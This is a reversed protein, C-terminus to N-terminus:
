TIYATPSDISDSCGGDPLSFALLSPPGFFTFFDPWTAGLLDFPFQYTNQFRDKCSQVATPDIDTVLGVMSNSVIDYISNPPSNVTISGVMAPIHPDCQYQYFGITTFVHVYTWGASIGGPNSFSVPNSPFTQVTGNVNHFGGNNVFTVSDGINITLNSPSFTMGQTNVTYNTSFLYTSTIISILLLSIRNKM